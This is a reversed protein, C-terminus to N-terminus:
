NSCSPPPPPTPLQSCSTDGPTVADSCAFAQTQGERAGGVLFFNNLLLGANLGGRQYNPTGNTTGFFNNYNTSVWSSVAANYTSPVAQTLIGGIDFAGALMPYEYRNVFNVLAFAPHFTDLGNLMPGTANPSATEASWETVLVPVALKTAPNTTTDLGFYTPNCSTRDAGRPYPHLAYAIQATSNSPDTLFFNGTSTKIGDLTHATSGADAIIVNTSGAHRLGNVLVQMGVATSNAALGSAPTTPSNAICQNYYTANGYANIAGQMSGCKWDLWNSGGPENYLELVIGQNNGYWSNLVQLARATDATPLATHENSPAGDNESQVALVVILNANRAIRVATRLCSVFAPDGSADPTGDADHTLSYQSVQYRVTDAGFNKIAQMENTGYAMQANLEAASGGDTQTQLYATSAIFAKIGVGQPIWTSGNKVWDHSSNISMTVAGGTATPLPITCVNPNTQAAASIPLAFSALVAFRTTLRM